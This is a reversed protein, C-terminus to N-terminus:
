VQFAELDTAEFAADFDIMHFWEEDALSPLLTTDKGFEASSSLTTSTSSDLSSPAIVSMISPDPTADFTNAASAKALALQKQQKAWEGPTMGTIKIFTRHFHWKSLGAQDSMQRLTQYKRSKGENALFNKVAIVAADEPQGEAREPKCRKCPRFGNAAAESACAYFGVNARRAIRAPCTPRCYIGTSSVTYVFANSAARDRKLVAEWRAKDTNYAVTM